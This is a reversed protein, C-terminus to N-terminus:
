FTRALWFKALITIWIHNKCENQLNFDILKCFTLKYHLPKLFKSLGIEQTFITLVEFFFYGLIVDSSMMIFDYIGFHM